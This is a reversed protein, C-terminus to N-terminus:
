GLTMVDFAIARAVGFTRRLLREYRVAAAVLDPDDAEMRHVAAAPAAGGSLGLDTSAARYNSRDHDPAVAREDVWFWEVSKWTLAFAALRRYTMAPTSGGSVAVRAVGRAAVADATARAMLEAAIAAHETADAAVLVEAAQETMVRELESGRAAGRQLRPRGRD